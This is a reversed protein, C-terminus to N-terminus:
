KLALSRHHTGLFLAAGKFLREMEKAPNLALCPPHGPRSPSSPTPKSCLPLPHFHNPLSATGPSLGNKEQPNASGEAEEERQPKLYGAKFLGGLEPCKM